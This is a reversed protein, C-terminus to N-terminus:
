GDKPHPPSRHRGHETIGKKRIMDDNSEILKRM